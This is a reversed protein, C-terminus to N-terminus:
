LQLEYYINTSILTFSVIAVRSIRITTTRSETRRKSLMDGRRITFPFLAKGLTDEGEEAAEEEPWGIPVTVTGETLM